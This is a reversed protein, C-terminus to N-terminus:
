VLSVQHKETAEGGPAGNSHSRVALQTLPAFKHGVYHRWGEHWFVYELKVREPWEIVIRQCERALKGVLSEWRRCASSSSSSSVLSRTSGAGTARMRRYLRGSHGYMSSPDSPAAM